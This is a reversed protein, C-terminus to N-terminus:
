PLQMPQLKLEYVLLLAVDQNVLSLLIPVLLGVPDVVGLVKVKQGMHVRTTVRHNKVALLEVKLINLGM